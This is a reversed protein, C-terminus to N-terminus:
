DLFAGSPSGCYTSNTVTSDVALSVLGTWGAGTNASPLISPPHITGDYCPPAVAPPTFCAKNIGATSKDSAKTLCTNTLAHNVAGPTCDGAPITGKQQGAYCKDYCKTRSAAYKTLTKATGDMCKAQGKDTTDVCAVAPTFLDLQSELNNVVASANGTASCDGGSYCTPCDTPTKTCAKVLAAITKAQVGRVPDQICTAVGGGYPPEADSFPNLGKRAGAEGKLICKAKGGIFKQGTKSTAAQCKFQAATQANATSAGAIMCAVGLAGVFRIMKSM